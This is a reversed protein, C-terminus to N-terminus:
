YTQEPRRRVPAKFAAVIEEVSAVPARVDAVIAADVVAEAVHADAEGAAFPSASAERVVGSDDTHVRRYNVICVHILRDYTVIRDHIVPAHGVRAARVANAVRRSRLLPLERCLSVGCGTGYLPLVNLGRRMIRLLTEIGVV